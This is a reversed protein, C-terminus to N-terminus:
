GKMIGARKKCAEVAVKGDLIGFRNQLFFNEAKKIDAQAVKKKNQYMGVLEKAATAYMTQVFAMAAEPNINDRTLKPLDVGDTTGVEKGEIIVIKRGDITSTSVDVVEREEFPVYKVIYTFVRILEDQNKKTNLEQWAQMYEGYKREADLIYADKDFSTHWEKVTGCFIFNVGDKCGIKIPTGQKQADLWEKLTMKPEDNRMM